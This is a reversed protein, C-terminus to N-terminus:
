TQELESIHKSVASPSMRLDRSALTFSKREAVKTFIAISNLDEM